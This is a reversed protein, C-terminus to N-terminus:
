EGTDNYRVVTCSGMAFRNVLDENSHLFIITFPIAMAVAAVGLLGCCIYIVAEFEGKRCCPTQRNRRTVKQGKRREEDRHRLSGEVAEQRRLWQEQESTM